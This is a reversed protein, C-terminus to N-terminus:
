PFIKLGNRLVARWYYERDAFWSGGVGVVGDADETFDLSQGSGVFLKPKLVDFARNTTAPDLVYRAIPYASLDAAVLGVCGSGKGGFYIPAPLRAQVESPTAYDFGSTRFRSYEDSVAADERRGRSEAYVVGISRANRLLRYFRELLFQIALEYPARPYSYRADLEDKRITVTILTFRARAIVLSLESQVGARDGPPVSAFDGEWKRIDQSHIRASPKGLVHRKFDELDTLFALYDDRGFACGAITLVPFAANINRMGHEGSEDVYLVLENAAPIM